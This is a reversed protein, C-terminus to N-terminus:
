KNRMMHMAAIKYNMRPDWAMKGAMRLVVLYWFRNSQNLAGYLGHNAQAVGDRVLAVSAHSIWEQLFKDNQIRMRMMESLEHEPNMVHFRKDREDEEEEEDRGRKNGNNCIHAPWGIQQCQVSCYFTQACRGCVLHTKIGCNNCLEEYNPSFVIDREEGVVPMAAAFVPNGDVDRLEDVRVQYGLKNHISQLVLGRSLMPLQTALDTFQELKFSDSYFAEKTGFFTLLVQKLPPAGTCWRLTVPGAPILLMLQKTGMLEEERSVDLIRTYVRPGSPSTLEVIPSGLDVWHNFLAESVIIGIQEDYTGISPLARLELFSGTDTYSAGPLVPNLNRQLSATDTQRKQMHDLEPQIEERKRVKKDHKDLWARGLQADPVSDPFEPRLLVIAVQRKNLKDVEDLDVEQKTIEEYLDVMDNWDDEDIETRSVLYNAAARM